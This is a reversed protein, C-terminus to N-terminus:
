NRLLNKKARGELSILPQPLFIEVKEINPNRRSLFWYGLEGECEDGMEFFSTFCKISGSHPTELVRRQLEISKRQFSRYNSVKSYM